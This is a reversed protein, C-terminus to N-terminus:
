KILKTCNSTAFIHQKHYSRIDTDKYIINDFHNYKMNIQHLILNKPSLIFRFDFKLYVFSSDFMWFNFLIFLNKMQNPTHRTEISDFSTFPYCTDIMKNYLANLLLIIFLCINVSSPFFSCEILHTAVTKVIQSSM